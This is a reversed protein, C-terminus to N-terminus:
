IRDSKDVSPAESSVQNGKGLSGSLGLSVKGKTILNRLFSELPFIMVAIIADIAFDAVPTSKFSFLSGIASQLFEIIIVLTLVTLAGSLFRNASNSQNMRSALVVLTGFFLIELAYFWPTQWYPPKVRISLLQAEEQNGFADRSRVELKYDSAPLYSFDITRSKSWTSWETNLGILRYQFETQLLGQFDPKSLEITLSNQDYSLVFEDESFSRSAKRVFLPYSEEYSQRFSPDYKYIEQDETLLWLADSTVDHTINTVEPFFSLYDYPQVKGISDLLHWVKGNYVWLQDNLNDKLYRYPKGVQKLLTTDERIEEEAPDFYFYGQTDVFYTTGSIKFIEVPDLFRNSINYDNLLVLTTDTLSAHYIHDSGALWVTGDGGGQMNVIIDDLTSSVKEVWVDEYLGYVKIELDRNSLMVENTGILVAKKIRESIIRKAGEKDVEYIGANSIGFLQDGMQVVELFKGNTGPVKEFRYDVGAFVSRTKRVYKQGKRPRGKVKTKTNPKDGFLKSLLPKKDSKEEDSTKLARNRKNFIRSVVNKKKASPNQKKSIKKQSSSTGIRFKKQTKEALEYYVENEYLTDKLFYYVGQSTTVWLNNKLFYSGTLNGSLGPYSKYAVAPFLPSILTLGFPHAAWVGSEDTEIGYIENDPLGSHYDTIQYYSTDKINLFILGKDFTAGAILTDNLWEVEQLSIEERALVRNQAALVYREDRYTLLEGELNILLHSDNRQNSAYVIVQHQEDAVLSDRLVFSTGYVDNVYFEDHLVFANLFEGKIIQVSNEEQKYLILHKSGVFVVEGKVIFTELFIDDLSDLQAIPRYYGTKFSRDVVGVSEICSVYILNNTDIAMSLTASPMAYFSWDQGDYDMIGSRNAMCLLGNQDKKIDFISHDVNPIHHNHESTIFYGTQSFSVVTFM